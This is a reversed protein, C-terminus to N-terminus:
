IKLISIRYADPTNLINKLHRIAIEIRMGDATKINLKYDHPFSNKHVLDFFFNQKILPM